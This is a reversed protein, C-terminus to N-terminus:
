LIPWELYFLWIHTHWWLGSSPASQRRQTHPRCSLHQESVSRKMEVTPFYGVHWLFVRSLMESDRERISSSQGTRKEDAFLVLERVRM